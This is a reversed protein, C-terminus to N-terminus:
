IMRGIELRGDEVMSAIKKAGAVALENRADTFIQHSLGVIIGVLYRYVTAQLTRHKGRLAHGVEIGQKYERFFSNCTHSLLDAFEQSETSIKEEM